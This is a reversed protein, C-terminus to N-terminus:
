CDTLIILQLKAIFSTFVGVGLRRPAGHRPKAIRPRTNSPSVGLGRGTLRQKSHPVKRQESHDVHKGTKRRHSSTRLHSWTETLSEIPSIAQISSARYEEAQPLNAYSTIEESMHLTLHNTFESLQVNEGCECQIYEVESDNDNSRSDGEVYKEPTFRKPIDETDSSGYYDEPHYIDIHEVVYITDFAHFDCFPCEINM